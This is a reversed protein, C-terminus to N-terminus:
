RAVLVIEDQHNAIHFTHARSFDAKSLAGYAFHPKLAGQHGAFRAIAARLRMSAPRWDGERTLPAAGPIPESLSHSMQGRWKFFAFAAAGATNQFVAGKPQPFGDLSMEISQAMHELVSVLPWQGTTKVSAAQDMRDLWRLAEDLSQVKPVDAMAFGGTFALTATALFDRRKM